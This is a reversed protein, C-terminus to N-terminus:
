HITQAQKANLVKQTEKITAQTQNLQQQIQQFQTPSGNQTPLQNLLQKGREVEQLAKQLLSPDPNNNAETLIQHAQRAAHAAQELKQNQQNQLHM